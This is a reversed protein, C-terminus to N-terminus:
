KLLGELETNTLAETPEPIRDLEAALGEIAGIPHQNEADRNLLKEHSVVEGIVQEAITAAVEAAEQAAQAANSSAQAQEVLKRAFEVEPAPLATVDVNGDVGVEVTQPTSISVEIM